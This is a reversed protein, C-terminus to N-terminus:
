IRVYPDVDLSQAETNQFSPSPEACQEHWGSHIKSVPPTFQKWHFVEHTKSSNGLIKFITGKRTLLEKLLILITFEM